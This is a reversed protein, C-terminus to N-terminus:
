VPHPPIRRFAEGYVCASAQSTRKAPHGACLHRTDRIENWASLAKTDPPAALVATHLEKIADQQIVLAQMVGWFELYASLPDSSFGRQMHARIAEATDQILYMSTYFAAHQDAHATQFFFDKGAKSGHFQDYIQSHARLVKDMQKGSLVIM